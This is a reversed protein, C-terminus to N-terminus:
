TVPVDRRRLHLIYGTWAQDDGPKTIHHSAIVEFYRATIAIFEEESPMDCAGDPTSEPNESFYVFRGGPRVATAIQRIAGAQNRGDCAALVPADNILLLDLTRGAIGLDTTSSHMVTINSVARSQSEWALKRSMRTDLDTALVHGTPGVASALRFAFYGGGAGLDAVSMGPRVDLYDLVVRTGANRDRAVNEIPLWFERWVPDSPTEVAPDISPPSQLEAARTM